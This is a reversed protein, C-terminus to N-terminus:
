AKLKRATDTLTLRALGLKEAAGVVERLAGSAEVGVGRVTVTVLNGEHLLDVEVDGLNAKVEKGDVRCAVTLTQDDVLQGLSAVDTGLVGGVAGLIAGPDEVTSLGGGELRRAMWSDEARRRLWVGASQLRNDATDLYVDTFENTYTVTGVDSLREATDDQGLYLRSVIVVKQAAEGAEQQKTVEDAEAERREEAEKPASVVEWSDSDGGSSDSDAAEVKLVNNRNGSGDDVVPLSEETIWEGDVIYKYQYTGPELSLGLSWGGDEHRDLDRQQWDSFQGAVKIDEGGKNWTVSVLVKGAM